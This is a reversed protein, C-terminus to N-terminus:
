HLKGLMVRALRGSLFAAGNMLHLAIFALPIGALTLILAEWVVDVQWIGLDIGDDVWYYFPAGVLAGTVSVLVVVMVFSGIGLPFKLFLYLIGTWTLRDSLHSKFRRWTGLFLREVPSLVQDDAVTSRERITRPIDEKLLSGAM